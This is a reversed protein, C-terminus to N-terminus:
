LHSQILQGVSEKIEGIDEQMNEINTEVRALREGRNSTKAIWGSSVAIVLGSGVMVIRVLTGNM